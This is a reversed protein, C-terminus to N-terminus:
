DLDLNQYLINIITDFKQFTVTGILLSYLNLFFTRGDM